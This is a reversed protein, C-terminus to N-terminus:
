LRLTQPHKMRREIRLPRVVAEKAKAKRAQNRGKDEIRRAAKLALNLGQSLKMRLMSILKM